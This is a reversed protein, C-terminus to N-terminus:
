IRIITDFMEKLIKLLKLHSTIIRDASILDKKAVTTTIAICQCGAKKASMIGLPANEIVVCENAKLDLKKLGELYPDPFPKGRKIDDACVIIKFKGIIEPISKDLREKSSATILGASINKKELYNLIELVQNYLKPKPEKTYYFQKAKALIDAKIKSKYKKLIKTAIENPTNGELPYYDNKNISINVDDFAKKWARYNGSMTDAIVGDYDFFVAKIRPKRM